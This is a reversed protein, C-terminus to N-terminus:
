LQQLSKRRNPRKVQRSLIKEVMWRKTRSIPKTEIIEVLDGIQCDMEDHAKMTEFCAYSKSLPIGFTRTIEVIVTKTMKNSAVAGKIRRRTNM